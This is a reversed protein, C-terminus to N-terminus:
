NRDSGESKNKNVLSFIREISGNSDPTQLVVLAYKYLLSFRDNNGVVSKTKSIHYWITDKRYEILGDDYESLIADKLTDTPLDSLGKFEVM